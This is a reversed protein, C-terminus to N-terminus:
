LFYERLLKSLGKILMKSDRRKIGNERMGNHSKGNGDRGMCNLEKGRQRGGQRDAKRGIMRGRQSGGGM